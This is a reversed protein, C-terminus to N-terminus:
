RIFRRICHKYAKIPKYALNCPIELSYFQNNETIFSLNSIKKMEREDRKRELEGEEIEGDM